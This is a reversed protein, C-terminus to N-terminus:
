RRVETTPTQDEDPTSTASGSLLPTLVMVPLMLMLAAFANFGIAAKANVLSAVAGLELLGLPTAGICLGMVGLARGRMGPEASLLMITSQMASFGSNGLGVFLLLAFSLDYRPSLAFGILSVLNLSAGLVFIRGHRQINGQAAILMAGAFTGIGDASALIGMLGPGVGLHDRAVVPLLQVYSFGLANMLVTTGLVGLIMRNRLSYRLGSVLSQWLSQTPVQPKASRARVQIILLLALLYASLLLGYVGSFGTWEIFLGGLLPGVFKGVTNSVTEFSMASVVRQPGVLDYIFSRRSPFDLITSWGLLMAGLFVHWPQVAEAMLLSFLGGTVLVNMTQTVVMVRWRSVRDAILGSFLGFVLLPASRVVGVLAVHWPSDTLGLMLWGLVGMEMWRCANGVGGAAWLCLFDRDQLVRWEPAKLRKPAKLRGWMQLHKM